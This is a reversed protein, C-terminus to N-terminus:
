HEGVTLAVYGTAFGGQNDAAKFQFSDVGNFNTNSVYMFSGDKQVTVRGNAPATNNVVTISDGDVDTSGALLGTDAGVVLM